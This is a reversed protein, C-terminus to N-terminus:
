KPLAESRLNEIHLDGYIVRYTESDVPKYWFIPTQADGVDVNDGAYRWNSSPPLQAIFLMGNYMVQPDVKGMAEPNLKGEALLDMVLKSFQPGMSIPQYIGNTSAEGWLRLFDVLNQETNQRNAQFAKLPTYGDPPTLDFLADDLEMDFSINNMVSNMGPSSPYEQEVQVLEKSEPNIWITTVVDDDFVRYGKVHIGNIRAAGLEEDAKEPLRRLSEIAAFQDPSGNQATTDFEATIYQQTPPVLSLQKGLPHNLITIYGDATTTRLLGPDKFLWDTKVTEGTETNTSTILTYALTRANRLGQVVQAYASPTGVLQVGLMVAILITAATSLKFTRNKMITRWITPEPGTVPTGQAADLRDLLDNLVAQNVKPDTKIPTNKIRQKIKETPRM